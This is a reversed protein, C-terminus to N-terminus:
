AAGRRRQLEVMATHRVDDDMGKEGVLWQLYGADVAPDYFRKMAHKGFLLKPLVAPNDSVTRMDEFTAGQAFARRLVGACVYADALARHRPGMDDALKLKLFYRLTGLKHDPADPWIWLAIKYADLWAADPPNFWQRDFKANYACFAAPAGDDGVATMYGIVDAFLPSDTVMDDTVDHVGSAEPPIPAGPNVLSSWVEGRKIVTGDASQHVLVDVTAAECVGAPPKLGATELDCCRILM